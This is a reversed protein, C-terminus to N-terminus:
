SSLIGDTYSPSRCSHMWSLVTSGPNTEPSRLLYKEKVTYVEKIFSASIKTTRWDLQPYGKAVERKYKRNYYQQEETQSVDKM